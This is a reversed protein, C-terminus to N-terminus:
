NKWFKKLQMRRCSPRRHFLFLNRVVCRNKKNFLSNADVFHLDENVNFEQIEFKYSQKTHATTSYWSIRSWSCGATSKLSLLKIVVRFSEQCTFKRLYTYEDDTWKIIMSETRTVNTYKSQRKRDGNVPWTAWRLWAAFRLINWELEIMKNCHLDTHRCKSLSSKVRFHVMRKTLRSVEIQRQVTTHSKSRFRNEALLM